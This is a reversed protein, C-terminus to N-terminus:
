KNDYIEEVRLSQNLLYSMGMYNAINKGYINFATGHDPSFRLFPLGFTANIGITGNKIKFPALGQDHFMYVFLQNKDNKYTHLTDGSFPGLFKIQPFMKSAIDKAKTVEIDENGLIGSEGCHPNIGSFYIEEIKSNKFYISNLTSGLNEVIEKSTIKPVSSLPIHDSILLYNDDYALFNMSAYPNYLSRFYDTHGKFGNLQDKSTPLTILLDNKRIIKSIHELAGFSQTICSDSIYIVKLKKNCFSIYNKEVKINFNLFRFNEELTKKNAVLTMRNLHKQSLM